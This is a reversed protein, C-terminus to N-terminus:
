KKHKLLWEVVDPLCQTVMLSHGQNAIIRFELPLNAAKAQDAIKQLSSASIVGDLQGAILLTPAITKVNRLGGMRGGALCAVAALKDAHNSSWSGVLMGGMSHGIAYVRAPDVRYHLSMAQIIGECASANLLAANTSASVVLFGHKDAQEKLLGAGYGDLFLNEDGGAGHFAIVLPLADDAAAARPAYIRAEIRFWGAPLTRWYDGPRKAYPDANQELARLEADIRAALDVPDFLFGTTKQESRQDTLLANRAKCAALAEKLAPSDPKFRDLRAQNDARVVDLSQEVVYFRGVPRRQGSALEIEVEHAGAALSPADLTLTIPRPPNPGLVFPAAAAPKDIGPQRLVLKLNVTNPLDVGYMPQITALPRTTAARLMVPPHVRVRLADIAQHVPLLRDRGLLQATQQNITRVADAPNGFFLTGTAMDFLRNIEPLRADPPPHDRFARDLNRYAIAVDARTPSAFGAPATAPRTSPRSAAAAHAPAAALLLALITQRTPLM